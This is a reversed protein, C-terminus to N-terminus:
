RVFLVREREKGRCNLEQIIKVAGKVEAKKGEPESKNEKMVSVVGVKLMQSHLEGVAQMLNMIM